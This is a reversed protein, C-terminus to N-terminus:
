VETIEVGHIAKMLKKKLRYVPTKTAPSKVDEVITEGDREYRFDAVYDGVHIGNVELRYKPQLELNTIEGAQLLLKLQSYRQAEKKSAFRIDDVVTPIAGYKHRRKEGVKEPGVGPPLPLPPYEQSLKRGLPTNRGVRAGM